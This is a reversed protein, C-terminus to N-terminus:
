VVPDARGISIIRCCSDAIRPVNDVYNRQHLAHAIVQARETYSPEDLVKHVAERIAEPEYDGTVRVGAGQREVASGNLNQELHTTLLVQPRGIALSVETTGIGGQHIIVSCNRLTDVM